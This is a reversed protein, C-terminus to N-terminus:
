QLFDQLSVMKSLLMGNGLFGLVAPIEEVVPDSQLQKPQVYSPPLKCNPALQAHNSFYRYVSSACVTPNSARSLLLVLLSFSLLILDGM